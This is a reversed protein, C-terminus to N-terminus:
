RSEAAAPPGQELQLYGAVSNRTIQTIVLEDPNTERASYFKVPEQAPRSHIWLTQGGTLKVSADYRQHLADIRSVELRIGPSLERSQHLNVQFDIRAPAAAPNPATVAPPNPAAVPPVAQPQSKMQAIQGQLQNLQQDASQQASELTNIQGQLVAVRQDVEARTPPPQLRGALVSAANGLRQGFTAKKNELAHGADDIRHGDAILQTQLAPLLNMRGHYAAVAWYGYSVM